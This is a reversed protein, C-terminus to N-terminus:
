KGTPAPLVHSATAQCDGTCEPFRQLFRAQELCHERLAGQAAVPQLCVGQVEKLAREYLDQRVAPPLGRISQEARQEIWTLAVILLALTLATVLGIV